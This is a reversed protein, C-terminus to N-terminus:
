HSVVETKDGQGVHGGSKGTRFGEDDAAVHDL